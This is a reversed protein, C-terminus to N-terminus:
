PYINVIFITHLVIGEFAKQKVDLQNKLAQLKDLKTNVQDLSNTEGQLEAVKKSIDDLWKQLETRNDDLTKVYVAADNM